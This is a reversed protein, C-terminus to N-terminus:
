VTAAKFAEFEEPGLCDILAQLRTNATQVRTQLKLTERHQNIADRINQENVM